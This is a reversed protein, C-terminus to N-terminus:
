AKCVRLLDSAEFLAPLQCPSGHDRLQLWYASPTPMLMQPQNIDCMRM